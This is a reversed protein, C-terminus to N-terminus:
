TKELIQSQIIAIETYIDRHKNKDKNIDRGKNLYHNIRFTLNVQRLNNVIEIIIRLM